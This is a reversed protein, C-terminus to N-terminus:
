VSAVFALTGLGALTCSLGALAMGRRILRKRQAADPVMEAGHNAMRRGHVCNYVCVGFTGALVGYTGLALPLALLFGFRPAAGWEFLGFGLLLACALWLVGIRVHHQRFRSGINHGM